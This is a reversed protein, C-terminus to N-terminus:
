WPRLHCDLGSVDMYSKTTVQVVSTSVSGLQLMVVSESMAMM